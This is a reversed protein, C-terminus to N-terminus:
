PQETNDIEPDIIGLQGAQNKVLIYLQWRTATGNAQKGRNYQNLIGVTNANMNVLKFDGTNANPTQAGDVNLGNNTMALGCATYVIADTPNFPDKVVSFNLLISREPKPTPNGGSANLNSVLLRQKAHGTSSDVIDVRGSQSGGNASDYILGSAGVTCFGQGIPKFTIPLKFNEVHPM